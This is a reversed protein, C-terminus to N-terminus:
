ETKCTAPTYKPKWSIATNIQISCVWYASSNRTLTVTAGKIGAYADKGFTATIHTFHNNSDTHITANYILNSDPDTGDIGVYERLIGNIKQSDEQQKVTPLGGQAIVSDIVTRASNLEYYVRNIQARILYDHYMPLAFAALVGIISIVIMLEILTFGCQKHTQM